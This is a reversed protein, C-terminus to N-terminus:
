GREPSDNSFAQPAECSPFANLATVGACAPVVAMIPIKRVLMGPEDTAPTVDALTTWDSKKVTTPTNM